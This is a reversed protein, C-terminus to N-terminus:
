KEMGMDCYYTGKLNYEDAVPFSPCICGQELIECRKSGKACFIKQIRIKM